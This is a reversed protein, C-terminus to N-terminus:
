EDEIVLGRRAAVELVHSYMLEMDERSLELPDSCPNGIATARGSPEGVWVLSADPDEFYVSDNM